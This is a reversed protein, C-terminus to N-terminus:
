RRRAHVMQPRHAPARRGGTPIAPHHQLPRRLRGAERDDGHRAAPRAQDVGAAPRPRLRPHHAAARLAPSTRPPAPGPHGRVDDRGPLRPRGRDPGLCLLPRGRRTPARRHRAVSLPCGAPSPSGMLEHWAPHFEVEDVRNGFRDHTRLRPPNENRVARAGPRSGGALQGLGRVMDQAWGAGERQLAGCRPDASPDYDVLPPPQNTVEHTAAMRGLMGATPQRFGPGRDYAPLRM